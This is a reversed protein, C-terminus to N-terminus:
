IRTTPMHQSNQSLDLHQIIQELFFTFSKASIVSREPSGRSNLQGRQKRGGVGGGVIVSGKM